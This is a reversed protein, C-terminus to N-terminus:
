KSEGRFAALASKAIERCNCTEYYTRCQADCKELAEALALAKKQWHEVNSAYRRAEEEWHVVEERLQDRESEMQKFKEIFAPPLTHFFVTENNEKMESM